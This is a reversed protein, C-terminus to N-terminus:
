LLTGFHLKLTWDNGNGSKKQLWHWIWLSQVTDLLFWKGVLRTKYRTIVDGMNVKIDYTWREFIAKRNAPLEVLEWVKSENLSLFGIYIAENRHQKQDYSIAKRYSSPVTIHTDSRMVSSVLVVDYHLREPPNRATSRTSRRLGLYDTLADM